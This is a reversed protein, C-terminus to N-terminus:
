VIYTHESVKYNLKNSINSIDWNCTNSCLKTYCQLIFSLTIKNNEGDNHSIQESINPTIIDSCVSKFVKWIYWIHQPSLRFFKFSMCAVTINYKTRCQGLLVSPERESSGKIGGVSKCDGGYSLDFRCFGIINCKICIITFTFICCIYIKIIKEEFKFCKIM